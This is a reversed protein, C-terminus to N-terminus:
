KGITHKDEHRKLNKKQNFSKGCVSCDFHDNMDGHKLKKHSVLNRKNTFKAECVECQFQADEESMCCRKHANLNKKYTFISNCRECKFIPKEKEEQYDEVKRDFAHHLSRVHKRLDDKQKFKAECDECSWKRDCSHTHKVHRKLIADSQFAKNCIDCKSTAECTTHKTKEHYSKAKESHFTKECVNCKFPAQEHEFKIHKKAFYPQCFRKDCYPCVTKFYESEDKELFRLEKESTAKMKYWTQKCFRCHDHNEFHYSHHFFLDGVCKKCNIPIGSYKLIYSNTFFKKGLCYKESSRISIAHKGEDFLSPHCIKHKNCQKQNSQCIPCPCPIKCRRYQCTYFLETDDSEESDSVFDKDTELKTGTRYASIKNTDLYEDYSSLSFRFCEKGDHVFETYKEFDLDTNRLQVNLNLQENQDYPGMYQGVKHDNYEEQVRKEFETLGDKVVNKAKGRKVRSKPFHLSFGNGSKKDCIFTDLTLKSSKVQPEEILVSQNDDHGCDDDDSDDSVSIDGIDGAEKVKARDCDSILEIGICKALVSIHRAQEELLISIQGSYLLTVLSSLSTPPNSPLIMIDPGSCCSDGFLARLFKSANRLLAKHVFVSDTNSSLLVAGDATSLTQAKLELLLGNPYSSTSLASMGVQAEPKLFVM